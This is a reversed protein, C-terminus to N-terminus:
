MINSHIILESNVLNTYIGSIPIDSPKGSIWLSKSCDILVLLFYVFKLVYKTQLIFCCLQGSALHDSYLNYAENHLKGPNLLNEHHDPPVLLFCIFFLGSLLFFKVMQHLPHQPFSSLFFFINILKSQQQITFCTKMTTIQLFDHSITMHMTM